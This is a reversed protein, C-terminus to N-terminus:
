ISKTFQKPTCGALRRFVTIFHSQDTFGLAAAIEEVNRHPRVLLRKAAEIRERMLYQHPSLGTSQKFMRCFHWPSMQVNEALEPLRLDAGLNSQMYDITRRLLYRPMGGRYDRLVAPKVAYRTLLHAAVATGVAEGFLRSSRFGDRLESELALALRELTPDAIAVQPVIEIKSPDIMDAAARAILSPKLYISLAAVPGRSSARHVVGPPLIGIAGAGFAKPKGEGQASAMGVGARIVAMYYDDFSAAVSTPGEQRFFEVALGEWLYGDSSQLPAILQSLKALQASRLGSDPKKRAQM